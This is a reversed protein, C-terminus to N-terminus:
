KQKKRCKNDIEKVLLHNFQEDAEYFKYVQEPTFHKKLTNHLKIELNRQTTKENELIELVLDYSPNDIKTSKKAHRMKRKSARIDDFFKNVIPKFTATEEETLNMHTAIYTIKRNIHETRWQQRQQKTFKHQSPHPPHNQAITLASILCLSLITILQKM